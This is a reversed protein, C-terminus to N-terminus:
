FEDDEEQDRELEMVKTFSKAATQHDDKRVNLFGLHQHYKIEDPDLEIAKQLAKIAKEVDELGEYAIGLLYYVKPNDEVQKVLSELGKIASKFDKMKIQLSSKRFVAGKHKPSLKLVKDFASLASKKNGSATLAVGLQYHADPNSPDLQAWEKLYGLSRDHLGKNAYHTSINRYIKAKDKSGIDFLGNYVDLIKSLFRGGFLFFSHLYFISSQGMQQPETNKRAKKKRAKRPRKKVEESGTDEFDINENDKGM